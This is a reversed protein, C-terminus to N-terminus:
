PIQIPVQALRLPAEACATGASVGLFSLTFLCLGHSLLKMLEGRLLPEGGDGAGSILRSRHHVELVTVVLGSAKRMLPAPLCILRELLPKSGARKARVGARPGSRGGCASAWSPDM